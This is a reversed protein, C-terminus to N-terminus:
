KGWALDMVQVLLETAFKVSVKKPLKTAKYHITKIENDLQEAYAVLEEYTWKGDRIELLEAADPRKVRVVGETLIEKGMRLLRVLHMAHKTDYGFQEELASRAENRNEKWTWYQKHKEKALKYEERNFKILRVPNGLTHSEIDRNVILAGIDDYVRYGSGTPMDYMGYLDQGYHILISENSHEINFKLEKDDSFSQVMTIFDIMKPADVPQPNTIWKNHGKIRKLQAIAYGSFTFATKSSLLKERNARLLEYGPSSELIDGEEVWLSEVINPNQDVLLTLFKSIEYYKTDEEEAIDIEGVNYWPSKYYLEDAVFIGRIDVDSTPLNTGYARSGAMHRVLLQDQLMEEPQRFDM